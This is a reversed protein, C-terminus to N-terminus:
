QVPATPVLGNNADAVLPAEIAVLSAQSARDESNFSYVFPTIPDGFFTYHQWSDVPFRIDFEALSDMGGASNYVLDVNRTRPRVKATCNANDSSNFYFIFGDEDDPSIPIGAYNIYRNCDRLRDNDVQIENFKDRDCVQEGSPGMIVPVQIAGSICQQYERSSRLGLVTAGGGEPGVWQAARYELSGADGRVLYFWNTQIAQTLLTQRTMRAADVASKVGPSALDFDTPTLTGCAAEVNQDRPANYTLTGDFLDVPPTSPQWQLQIDYANPSYTNALSLGNSVNLACGFAPDNAIPGTPAIKALAFHRMVRLDYTNPGSRRSLFLTVTEGPYFAFSDLSISAVESAGSLLIQLEGDFRTRDLRIPQITGPASEPDGGIDGFNLGTALPGSSGYVSLEGGGAYGHVVYVNFYDDGAGEGSADGCGM